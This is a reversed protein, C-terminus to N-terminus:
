QLPEESSVTIGINRGHCSGGTSYLCHQVVSQHGQLTLTFFAGGGTRTESLFQQLHHLMDPLFKAAHAFCMWDLFRRADVLSSITQSASNNGADEPVVFSVVESSM